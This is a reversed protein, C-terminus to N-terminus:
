FQPAKWIYWFQKLLYISFFKYLILVFRHDCLFTINLKNGRSQIQAVTHVNFLSLWYLLAKGVHLHLLIATTLDILVLKNAIYECLQSKGVLRSHLRWNTSLIISNNISFLVFNLLSDMLIPWGAFIWKMGVATETTWGLRDNLANEIDSVLYVNPQEVKVSNYRRKM